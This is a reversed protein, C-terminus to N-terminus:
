RRSARILRPNDTASTASLNADARRADIKPFRIVNSWSICIQACKALHELQRNPSRSLHCRCLRQQNFEFAPSRLREVPFAQRQEEYDPRATSQGVRAASRMSVSSCSRLTLCHCHSREFSTIVCRVSGFCLSWCSLRRDWPPPGGFDLLRPMGHQGIVKRSLPRAPSGGMRPM